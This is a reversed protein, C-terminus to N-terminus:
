FKKQNYNALLANMFWTFMSPHPKVITWIVLALHTAMLCKQGHPCAELGEKGWTSLCPKKPFEREGQETWM